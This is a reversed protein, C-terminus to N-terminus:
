AVMPFVNGGSNRSRAGFRRRPLKRWERLIRAAYQRTTPLPLGYPLSAAVTSRSSNSARTGIRADAPDTRTSTDDTKLTYLRDIIRKASFLTPNAYVHLTYTQM